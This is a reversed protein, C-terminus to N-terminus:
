VAPNTSLALTGRPLQTVIAQQWTITDMQVECLAPLPHPPQRQQAGPGGEPNSVCSRRITADQDLVMWVSWAETEQGAFHASYSHLPVQSFMQIMM